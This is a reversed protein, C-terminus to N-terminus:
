RCNVCGDVRSQGPALLGRNVQGRAGCACVVQKSGRFVPETRVGNSPLGVMLSEGKRRPKQRARRKSRRTDVNVRRRCDSCPREGAKRHRQYGAWTGRAPEGRNPGTKIPTDCIDKM